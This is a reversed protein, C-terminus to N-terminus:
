TRLGLRGALEDLYSLHSLLHRNKPEAARELCDRYYADFATRAKDLDGLHGYIMAEELLILHHDLRDFHPYEHRHALIAVRSSLIDYVPLVQGLLVETIAAAMADPDEEKLNFTRANGGGQEGIRARINCEYEHYFAKLPRSPSFEREFCEPVRIGLNVWMLHTMELYAQGCQFNVVQSIDGEVFRHLTRGHKSFGFPKLVKYTAAEIRDIRRTIESKEAM